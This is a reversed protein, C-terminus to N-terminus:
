GKFTDLTERWEARLLHKKMEETMEPFEWKIFNMNKEEGTLPRTEVIGDEHRFECDLYRGKKIQRRRAMRMKLTSTFLTLLYKNRPTSVSCRKKMLRHMATHPANPFPMCGPLYIDAIEALGRTCTGVALKPESFAAIDERTYPNGSRDFWTTKGEIDVGPGIIVALPLDRNHGEYRIMDLGGRVTALCGGRCSYEMKRLVDENIDAASFRDPFEALRWGNLFRVNPFLAAVEPSYLSPDARKFPVPEMEGIVKVGPDGFGVRKAIKILDIEDPDFGMIRAAASDTEVSNDGSVIVRSDVPFVPAPCNGEAGVIGDIIVLGPQFLYLMEVLKRDLDYNHNRQRLNYPITGMANKFGLTVGTYLNTKMKPVSIYFADGNAVESFIGPVLMEKMVKAKPLIYRHATMEELAALGAGHFKALRDIGTIKFSARTPVGRGSSEVIVVERAHGKVFGVIADLVRPDTTQPYDRRRFGIRHYPVVLNPKVIVKRNKMKQTFGTERDLLELNKSVAEGIAKVDDRNYYAASGYNKPLAVYDNTYDLMEARTIVVCSGTKNM